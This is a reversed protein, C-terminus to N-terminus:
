YIFKNGNRKFFEKKSKASFYDVMLDAIKKAAGSEIVAGLKNFFDNLNKMYKDEDFNLILTELEDNNQSYPYPYEDFPFYLDRDNRYEELDSVYRFVPLRKLSFDYNISSYDGILISSVAILEQTDPYFTSNVVTTGDYEIGGEVNAVNPHLHVLIVYEKGFRKQLNTRLREFDINYAKFSHDARFTPAYLVLEKTREINFYKYM